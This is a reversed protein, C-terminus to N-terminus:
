SPIQHGSVPRQGPPGSKLPIRLAPLAKEFGQGAEDTNPYLHVQLFEDFCVVARGTRLLFVKVLPSSVIDESRLVDTSPSKGTADEGILAIVHFLVTDM